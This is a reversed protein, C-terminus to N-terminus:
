PFSAPDNCPSNLRQMKAMEKSINAADVVELWSIRPPALNTQLFPWRNNPHATLHSNASAVHEGAFGCCGSLTAKANVENHSSTATQTSITVSIRPNALFFGNKLDIYLHKKLLALFLCFFHRLFFGLIGHNSFKAAGAPINLAVDRQSANLM